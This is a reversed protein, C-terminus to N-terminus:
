AAVPYVFRAAPGLKQGIKLLRSRLTAPDLGANACVTSFDREDEFLFQQAERRARLTGFRWDEVAKAIVATWLRHEAILEETVTSSGQELKQSKIEAM